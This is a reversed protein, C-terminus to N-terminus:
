NTDKTKWLPSVSQVNQNYKILYVDPNRIEKWENFGFDNDFQNLILAFLNGHTVVIINTHESNYISQLLQNM